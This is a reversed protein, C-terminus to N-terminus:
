DSFGCKLALMCLMRALFRMCAASGRVQVCARSGVRLCACPASGRSPCARAQIRVPKVAEVRAHVDSVCTSQYDMCALVCLSVCITCALTSVSISCADSDSKNLRMGSVHRMHQRMSLYNLTPSYLCHLRYANM